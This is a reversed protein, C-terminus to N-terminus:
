LAADVRALGTFGGVTVRRERGRQDRLLLTMGTSSGQPQYRVEEPLCSVLELQEPIPFSKEGSTGGALELRDEGPRCRVVLM